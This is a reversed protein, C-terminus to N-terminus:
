RVSKLGLIQICRNVATQIVSREVKRGSQRSAWASIQGWSWGARLRLYLWEAWQRATEADLERGQERRLKVGQKGARTEVTRCYGELALTLLQKREGATLYEAYPFQGWVEQGDVSHVVQQIYHARSESDPNYPLIGPIPPVPIPECAPNGEVQATFQEWASVYEREQATPCALGRYADQLAQLYEGFTAYQLPDYFPLTSGAPVDPPPPPLDDQKRGVVAISGFPCTEESGADKRRLALGIDQLADPPLGWEQLLAGLGRVQAELPLGLLGRYANRFAPEREWLM